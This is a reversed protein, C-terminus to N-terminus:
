SIRQTSGRRPRNAFDFKKEEEKEGEEEEGISDSSESFSKNKNVENKNESEEVFSTDSKFTSTAHSKSSSTASSSTKFSDASEITGSDKGSQRIKALEGGLGKRANFSEVIREDDLNKNIPSKSNQQKAKM